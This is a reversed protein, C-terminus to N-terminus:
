GQPIALYKKLFRVALYIIPTDVLAALAKFAYNSLLLGVAVPIAMDGNM